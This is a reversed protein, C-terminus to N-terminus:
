IIKKNGRISKAWKGKGEAGRERETVSANNKSYRLFIM